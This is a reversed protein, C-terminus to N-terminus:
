VGWAACFMSPQGDWLLQVGHSSIGLSDREEKFQSLSEKVEDLVAVPLELPSLGEARLKAAWSHLTEPRTAREQGECAVCNVLSRELYLEELVAAQTRTEATCLADTASLRNLFFSFGDRVRTLFPATNGNLDNDAFCFIAPQLAWLWQFPPPLVPTYTVSQSVPLLTHLVDIAACSLTGCAM